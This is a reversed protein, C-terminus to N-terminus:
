CSADEGSPFCLELAPRHPACDQLITGIRGPTTTQAPTKFYGTTQLGGDIYLRVGVTAPAVGSNTLNFLATFHRTSTVSDCETYFYAASTITVSPRLAAVSLFVSFIALAVLAGLISGVRSPPRVREPKPAGSHFPRPADWQEGTTGSSM